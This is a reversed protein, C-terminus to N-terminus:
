LGYRLDKAGQDEGRYKEVIAVVARMTQQEIATLDDLKKVNVSQLRDKKKRIITITVSEEAIDEREKLYFTVTM